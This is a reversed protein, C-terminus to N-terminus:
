CNATVRHIFASRLNSFQKFRVTNTIHPMETFIREIQKLRNAFEDGKKRMYRLTAGGEKTKKDRESHFDLDVGRDVDSSGDFLGTVSLSTIVLGGGTGDNPPDDTQRVDDIKSRLRELRDQM